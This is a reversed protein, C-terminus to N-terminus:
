AAVPASAPVAALQRRRAVIYLGGALAFGVFSGIDTGGLLRAVPGTYADTASFLVITLPTVLAFIVVGVGWRGVPATPDRVVFWDALVIAAWPAIWYLLVVMYGAFLEAFAGAGAVALAFGCAGTVIATIPRPLRVGASILSYAATNDNISNVPIASVAIALLAIPAFAGTLGRLCGIVGAPSVDTLRSATLLGLLEITFSSLVLGGFSLMAITARPTAAPLYRTYDSSYPAFGICFGAIISVALVFAAPTVHAHAVALSGGRAVAVIGTIAFVVILVYSVYKGIAQVLHHGYVSAVLQTGALLALGLWFPLGIGVLAALAVLALVSPVNNVADWGVACLWNLASPVRTGLRGFAFRSTEIQTLGTPPGLTSCLAVPLAGLVNGLILALVGWRVDLGITVVLAGLVWAAPGLNTCFHSWFVKERSMTRAEAPVGHEVLSAHVDEVTFARVSTM